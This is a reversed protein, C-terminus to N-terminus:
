YFLQEWPFFSVFLLYVIGSGKTLIEKPQLPQSFQSIQAKM